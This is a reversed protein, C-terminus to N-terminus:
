PVFRWPYGSRVGVVRGDPLTMYLAFDPGQDVPSIHSGAVMQKTMTYGAEPALAWGLKAALVPENTWLRGFGSVPAFRGPPPVNDPNSEPLGQYESEYYNWVATGDNFFVYIQKFEGDWVMFGNEFLQYAASVEYPSGEPCGVGAGFFFNDPCYGEVEVKANVSYDETWLTFGVTGITSKPLPITATGKLVESEVVRNSGMQGPVWQDIFIRGTGRVEWNFTVPSDFAAREPTVTFSLIESSSVEDVTVEEEITTEVTVPSTVVPAPPSSIIPLVVERETYVGNTVVDKLQMRLRVEKMGDRWVPKVPGHWTSPIWLNSRPLEVLVASGDDLVQEFIPNATPPRNSIEWWLEVTTAGVARADLAAMNATLSDITPQEVTISYTIVVTDQDIVRGQKDVISLLFMPPGFNQPHHVTVLREGNAEMPVGAPDIVPVWKDVQYENLILFYDATLGDTRWRLLAERAYNEAEAETVSKLVSTFSVISPSPAQANAVQYGILIV